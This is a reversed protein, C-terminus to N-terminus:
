AWGPFAMRELLRYSDRQNYTMLEGCKVLPRFPFGLSLHFWFYPGKDDSKEEFIFQGFMSGSSRLWNACLQYRSWMAARDRRLDGPVWDAAEGKCHQSTQSGGVARNLVDSRYGNSVSVPANVVPRLPELLTVCLLSLKPVVLLGGERNAALLGARVTTTLEYFKLHKSLNFDTV